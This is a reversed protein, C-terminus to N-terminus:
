WKKKEKKKDSIFLIHKLKKIFLQRLGPSQIAILKFGTDLVLTQSKKIQNSVIKSHKIIKGKVEYEEKLIKEFVEIRMNLSKYDDSSIITEIKSLLNRFEYVLFQQNTIQVSEISLQPNYTQVMELLDSFGVKM